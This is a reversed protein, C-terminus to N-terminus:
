CLSHYLRGVAFRDLIDACRFLGFIFRTFGLSRLLGFTLGRQLGLASLSFSGYSREAPARAPLRVSLPWPRASNRGCIAILVGIASYKTAMRSLAERAVSPAFGSDM